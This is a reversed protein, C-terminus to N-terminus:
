NLMSMANAVPRPQIPHTASTLKLLRAAFQCLGSCITVINKFGFNSLWLVQSQLELIIGRM